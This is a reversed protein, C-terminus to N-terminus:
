TLVEWSAQYRDLERRTYDDMPHEREPVDVKKEEGCVGANHAWRITPRRINFEDARSIQSEFSSQSTKAM